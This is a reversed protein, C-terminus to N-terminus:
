DLTIEKISKLKKSICIKKKQEHRLHREYCKLSMKRSKKCLDKIEIM